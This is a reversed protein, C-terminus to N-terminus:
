KIITLKKTQSFSGARLQYFYVGSPLNGSDFSIEHLGATIFRDMLIGTEKGLLDYLKLSVASQEPLKFAIQTGPNFPNPYNQHLAYGGPQEATDFIHTTEGIKRCSEWEYGIEGGGEPIEFLRDTHNYDACQDPITERRDSNLFYFSGTDGAPLYTFYSHIENGVSAMPEPNGAENRVADGAIFLNDSQVGVGGMDVNFTIKPWEPNRYFEANSWRGGGDSMFNLDDPHFFSVHTHASGTQWPTKCPTDVWAPEWFIVGAGGARMVARTFDVMYELQKEPIVPLYDPDPKNIIGGYEDSWLYGTEVTMVDYQPFAEVLSEVTTELQSISGEHWAYYYSFGIVDFDTVGASTMQKYWWEVGELNSWHLAIKPNISASKGVDRVARIGSNFLLANREWDTGSAITEATEFSNDAPIQTLMGSNTENGIKVFDPMLGDADLETLVGHTYSYVSDALAHDDDAVSLWLRPILQRGPDAWFDSYHFGLMVKMGEARARLITEKVDALNNYVSKVGDPQDLPSQWWSPDVWLRVRVLNTGQGAFIKYPDAPTGNLKYEAGCDEMQNVYSLDVGFYFSEPQAHSRCASLCIILALAYKSLEM